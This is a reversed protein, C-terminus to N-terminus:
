KEGYMTIKFGALLPYDPFSKILTLGTVSSFYHPDEFHSWGGSVAWGQFALRRQALPVPRHPDKRLRGAVAAAEGRGSLPLGGASGQGEARDGSPVLRWLSWDVGILSFQFNDGGTSLTATKLLHLANQDRWAQEAAELATRNEEAAQEAREVRASLETLQARDAKGEAEAAWQNLQFYETYSSAM